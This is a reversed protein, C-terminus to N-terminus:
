QLVQTPKVVSDVDIVEGQTEALYEAETIAEFKDNHYEAFITFQGNSFTINEVGDKDTYIALQKVVAGTDIYVPEQGPEGDFEIVDEGMYRAFPMTTHPAISSIMQPASKHTIKPTQKKSRNKAKAASRAKAKAHMKAKDAKTKAM